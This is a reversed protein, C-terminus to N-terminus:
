DGPVVKQLALTLGFAAVAVAALHLSGLTALIVAADVLSIAAILLPVLWRAYPGAVRAVVTLMSVYVTMLVAALIAAQPPTGALAAAAVLYVLGRCVGMVLPALSEGKHRANYLLIALALMVGWVAAPGRPLLLLEGAALLVGGAVFVERRTVDGAPIPRAPRAVRDFPVDFADNLLMGGTYFLSVAVAVSLYAPVDPRGAAAMGALINTWVTPLNSCRSLLLYARWRPRRGAPHTATQM